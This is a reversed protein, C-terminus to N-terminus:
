KVGKGKLGAPFLDGRKLAGLLECFEGIRLKLPLKQAFRRNIGFTINLKQALEHSFPELHLVLECIVEIVLGCFLLGNCM